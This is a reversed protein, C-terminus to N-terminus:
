ESILLTAIIDNSTKEFAAKSAGIEVCNRGCPRLDKMLSGLGSDKEEKQGVVLSTIM